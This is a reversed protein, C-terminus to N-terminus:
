LANDGTDNELKDSKRLFIVGGNDKRTNSFIDKIATKKRWLVRLMAM